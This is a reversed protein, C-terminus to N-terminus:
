LYIHPEGKRRAYARRWLLVHVEPSFSNFTGEKKKICFSVFIHVFSSSSSSSSSFFLQINRKQYLIKLIFGRSCFFFSFSSNVTERRICFSWLLIQVCSSSSSSSNVTGRRSYFSWFLIQVSSSSNFTGRRICFSPLVAEISHSRDSWLASSATGDHHRHTCVTLTLFDIARPHHIQVTGKYRQLSCCYHSCSNWSHTMPPGLLCILSDSANLCFRLLLFLCVFRVACSIQLM